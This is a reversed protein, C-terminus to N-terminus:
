HMAFWFNLIVFAIDQPWLCCTQTGPSAKSINIVMPPQLISPGFMGRQGNKSMCFPQNQPLWQAGPSVSVAVQGGPPMLLHVLM